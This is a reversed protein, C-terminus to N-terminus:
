KGVLYESLIIEKPGEINASSNFELKQFLDYPIGKKIENYM